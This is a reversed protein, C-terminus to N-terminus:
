AGYTVLVCFDARRMKRALPKPLVSEKNKGRHTGRKRERERRERGAHSRRRKLVPSGNRGWVV